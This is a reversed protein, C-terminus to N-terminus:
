KLRVIDVITILLILGILVLFARGVIKEETERKLPKRRLKFIAILLWRGGDLAPIPLVNMCALSVSIVVALLALNTPGAQLSQPFIMGIIGIPGAVGEGAAEIQKQGAERTKSDFNFQSVIGSGLNWLMVGVGKFTEGTLQLTTMVGVIPASWTYRSLTQGKLGPTVGLRYGEDKKNLKVKLELEEQGRKLKVPIEAEDPQDKTLDILDMPEVVKADSIKLIEDDKKIGAKEAPSDPQVKYAIVKAYTTRADSEIKFQNPLVEPLGTWALITTLIMAALWNFTVGAFLIKTKALFSARGFSAKEKSDASEGKMACFGGIPLWNLSFILGADDKDDALVATKALSAKNKNVAGPNSANEGGENLQNLKRKPLRVWGKETKQWAMMRPPFGIGFEKVKVGNRVAALFHGLEHIVVLLTLVIFGVIVGLFVNLASM